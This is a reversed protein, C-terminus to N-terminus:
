SEAALANARRNNIQFSKEVEYQSAHETPLFVDCKEADILM